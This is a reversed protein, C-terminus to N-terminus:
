STTINTQCIEKTDARLPHLFKQQSSNSKKIESNKELGGKAVKLRGQNSSNTMGSKSKSLQVLLTAGKVVHELGQDLLILASQPNLIRINYRVRQSQWYVLETHTINKIIIM